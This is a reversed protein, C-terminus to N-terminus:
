VTVGGGGRLCLSGGAIKGGVKILSDTGYGQHGGAKSVIGKSGKANRRM